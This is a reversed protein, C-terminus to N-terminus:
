DDNECAQNCIGPSSLEKNQDGKKKVSSIVKMKSESDSSVLNKLSLRCLRGCTVRYALERMLAVTARKFTKNMGFYIMPNLCSNAVALWFSYFEVQHNLDWTNGSVLAYINITVYPLWCIYFALLLTILVFFVRKNKKSHVRMKCDDSSQSRVQSQFIQYSSLASTITVIIMSPVLFTIIIGVVYEPHMFYTVTCLYKDPSYTFCIIGPPITVIYILNCFVWSFLISIVTMRTTVIRTYYFPHCIAIYREISLLLLMLLSVKMCVESIYASLLCGTVGFPWYHKFVPFTATIAAPGMLLDAVALSLLYYGHCNRFSKTKMLVTITIINGLIILLPISIVIVQEAVCVSGECTANSSANGINLLSLLDGDGHHGHGNTDDIPHHAMNGDMMTNHHDPSMDHSKEHSMVHSNNHSPMHPPDGFMDMNHLDQMPGHTGEMPDITVHHPDMDVLPSRCNILSIRIFLLVSILMDRLHTFKM